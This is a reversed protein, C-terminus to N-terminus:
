FKQIGDLFSLVPALDLGQHRSLIHHQITPLGQRTKKEMDGWYQNMLQHLNELSYKERTKKFDGSLQPLVKLTEQPFHLFPNVEGEHPSLDEMSLELLDDLFQFILGITKGLKFFDVGMRYENYPALSGASPFRKQRQSSPILMFTGLLSLQM